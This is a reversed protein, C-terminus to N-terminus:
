KHQKYSYTLLKQQQWKQKYRPLHGAMKKWSSETLWKCDESSGDKHLHGRGRFDGSASGRRVEWAIEMRDTKRHSTTNLWVDSLNNARPKSVRDWKKCCGNVTPDNSSHPCQLSILHSPSHTFIQEKSASSRRPIYFRRHLRRVAKCECETKQM